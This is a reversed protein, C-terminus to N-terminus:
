AFLAAADLASRPASAHSRGPATLPGAGLTRAAPQTVAGPTYGINLPPAPSDDVSHKVPAAALYVILLWAAGVALAFIWSFFLPLFEQDRWAAPTRVRVAAVM